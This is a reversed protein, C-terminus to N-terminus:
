SIRPKTCGVGSIDRPPSSRTLRRGLASRATVSPSKRPSRSGGRSKAEVLLEHWSPESERVGVRFGISDRGVM